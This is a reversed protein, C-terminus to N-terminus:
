SRESGAPLLFGVGERAAALTAGAVARARDRGEALTRDVTSGEAMLEAYRERVPQLEAVVADAVANKLDGYGSGSFEKELQEITMGGVASYITLLNTVGPKDAAAVVDRGTDTVASRLKKRIQAATDLVNITGAPPRSKSMKKTPDQLDSIRHAEHIVYPGPITFTEGFRTNFRQALVRTLELHQRQDEGVPVQDARYLLIDAAQLIPYNFLGVTASGLENRASKDKFQTMRSAEGYGTICGLIWGLEAHEPVQSQVFITCRGPDLGCAILEAVAERTRRRLAAPDHQVTIAHMDPVFYFADHSDQLPVWRRLAGLYNGLHSGSGTPQIGSLVRPRSPQM